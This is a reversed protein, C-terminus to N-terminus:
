RGEPNYTKLDWQAYWRPSRALLDYDTRMTVEECRCFGRAFPLSAMLDGVRQALTEAEAESPAWMLAEVRPSDILRDQRAGDVRRVVVLTAPREAPVSTRVEVGPLGDAFLSRLAAQVNLPAM